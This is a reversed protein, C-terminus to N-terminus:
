ALFVSTIQHIGVTYKKEKEKPHLAMTSDKRESNTERKESYCYRVGTYRNGFGSPCHIESIYKASFFNILYKM